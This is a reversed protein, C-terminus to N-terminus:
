AFALARPERRVDALHMPRGLQRRVHAAHHQAVFHEIRHRYLQQCAQATNPVLATHRQVCPAEGIGVARGVQARRQLHCAAVIVDGFNMGLGFAEDARQRIPQFRARHKQEIVAKRFMLIVVRLAAHAGHHAVAGM